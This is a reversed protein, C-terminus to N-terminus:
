ASIPDEDDKIVTTYILYGLAALILAFGLIHMAGIPQDGLAQATRPDLQQGAREPMAPAPVPSAQASVSAFALSTAAAVAVPLSFRM